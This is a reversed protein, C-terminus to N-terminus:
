ANHLLIEVLIKREEEDENVPVLNRINLQQNQLDRLADRYLNVFCM